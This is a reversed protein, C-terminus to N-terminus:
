VSFFPFALKLLNSDYFTKVEISRAPAIAKNKSITGMKSVLDLRAVESPVFNIKGHYKKPVDFHTYILDNVQFFLHTLDDAETFIGLKPLTATLCGSKGVRVKVIITKPIKLVM